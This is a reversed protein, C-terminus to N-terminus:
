PAGAPSGSPAPRPPPSWTITGAGSAASYYGDATFAVIRYHYTAGPVVTRDLYEFRKVKQFRGRDGVALRGLEDFPESEKSREVVFGALDEMRSGDVYATPRAWRLEVGEALTTLALEAVPRPAVLEPPRVDTKRGCACVALVVLLLVGRDHRAPSRM